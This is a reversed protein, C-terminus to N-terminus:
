VIDTQVLGKESAVVLPIVQQDRKRHNSLPKVEGRAGRCLLHSSMVGAPNDWESIWSYLCKNVAGRPKDCDEVDKM